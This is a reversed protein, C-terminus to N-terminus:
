VMNCHKQFCQLFVNVVYLIHEGEVVVCFNCEFKLFALEGRSGDFAESM